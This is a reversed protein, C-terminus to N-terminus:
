AAPAEVKRLVAVGEVHGTQPFFDFGRLSEIAYKVGGRGEVLVGVDRAQTHVNCSVYVVRQPAFALLQGLFADDCGKRPPDIIVVTENPPYTVAEFLKAADATIFTANSIDNLTANERASTISAGAIDIGTTSAFLSSLTITFLGSGCYADILYNIPKAPTTSPSTSTPTLCPSPPHIQSRIYATFQPLISNNNQFFAGATNKFVFSDIYETSTARQDTICTKIETYPTTDVAHGNAQPSSSDTPGNIAGLFPEKDGLRTEKGAGNESSKFSFEDQDSQDKPTRTTSERLLITAGKTYKAIDRTVREREAKLGDRVAETGIPCDEIDITKRMGKIQFGIPPVEEFGKRTSPDRRAKRSMSGPPGDFHPTLKTRYGYQLSSGITDGVTPVAEQVLSSFNRYAKEIITKKHALQDEYPLMQMQCGACNSFYQCKVLSEDRKAGPTTIKVFDTLTYRAEPFHNVIRAQVVDGPVTFPVVFVHNVAPIFGLGDGTSSLESIKVEIKHFRNPLSQVNNSKSELKTETEVDETELTTQHKRLLAKVDFLLVEESSGETTPKQAFKQRKAANKQGKTMTYYYYQRSSPSFITRLTLGLGWM